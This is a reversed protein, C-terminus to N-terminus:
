PLLMCRCRFCLLSKMQRTSLRKIVVKAAKVVVTSVEQSQKVKLWSLNIENM